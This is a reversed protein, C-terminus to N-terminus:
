PARTRSRPANVSRGGDPRAALVAALVRDRGLRASQRANPHFRGDDHAAAHQRSHGRRRARESQQADEARISLHLFVLGKGLTANTDFFVHYTDPMSTPGLMLTYKTPDNAIVAQISGPKLGSPDAVTVTLDMLGGVFGGALPKVYTILPGTTDPTSGAFDAGAFDLPTFAFDAGAGGDGANAMDEAPAGSDFPVFPQMSQGCAAALLPVLLGLSTVRM